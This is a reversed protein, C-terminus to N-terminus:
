AVKKAMRHAVKKGNKKKSLGTGAFHFCGCWKCIQYLVFAMIRNVRRCKHSSWKNPFLANWFSLHSAISGREECFFYVRGHMHLKIPNKDHVLPVLSLKTWRVSKKETRAPCICLPCMLSFIRRVNLPFLICFRAVDQCKCKVFSPAPVPRQQGIEYIWNQSVKTCIDAIKSKPM